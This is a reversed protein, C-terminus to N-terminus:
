LIIKNTFYLFAIFNKLSHLAISPWLSKTEEALWVLLLSLVFTDIGVNLQLHALGFIISTLIGALFPRIKTRLGQYLFGRFILEEAIPAVVCFAVFALYMEFNTSAGDFSTQQDQNLNINPLVIQILAFLGTTMLFYLGFAPLAYWIKLLNKKNFGIQSLSIKCKRLYWILLGISILGNVVYLAFNWSIGGGQQMGRFVNEGLLKLAIAVIIQPLIYIVLSFLVVPIPSWLIKNFSKSSDESM